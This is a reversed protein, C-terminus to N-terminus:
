IHSLVLKKFIGDILHELSSKIHQNPTLIDFKIGRLRLSLLISNIPLAPLSLPAVALLALHLPLSTFWIEPTVLTFSAALQHGLM